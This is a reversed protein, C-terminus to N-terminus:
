VNFFCSPTERTHKILFVGQLINGLVVTQFVFRTYPLLIFLFESIPLNSHEALVLSLGRYKIPM